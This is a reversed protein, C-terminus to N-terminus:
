FMVMMIEEVLGAIVIRPKEVIYQVRILNKQAIQWINSIILM